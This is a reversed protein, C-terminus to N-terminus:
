HSEKAEGGNRSGIAWWTNQDISQTIYRVSADAMAVNVGDIHRSGATVINNGNGEGGYIHCNRKNPTFVHMYTNGVNSWGSIWGNGIPASYHADPMSVGECYSIWRDLTRKTLSGGCFSFMGQHLKDIRGYSLGFPTQSANVSNIVREAILATNSTGDLFSAFTVHEVHWSEIFKSNFLGIAGNTELSAESSNSVSAGMPWGTNATYSGASANASGIASSARVPDSPCLVLPLKTAAAKANPHTSSLTVTSYGSLSLQRGSDAMGVHSDILQVLAFQELQPLIPVVWSTFGTQCYRPAEKAGLYQTPLTRFSYEYNHIAIAIQRMQSSCQLRRAAERAQQIAPLLLAALLGAIAIAVLLETLTFGGSAEKFVSREADSTSGM